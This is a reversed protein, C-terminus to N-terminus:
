ISGILENFVNYVKQKIAGMENKLDSEYTKSANLNKMIYEVADESTINCGDIVYKGKGVSEFVGKFKKSYAVGITPIGISLAAICSHMRSGIFYNCNSIIWKIESQNYQRSVIHLRKTDIKGELQRMVRLSANPDSNVNDISGFTHPVILVRHEKSKLISELLLLTFKKYDMKLRFMNSGFYGGQYLLGNINFGIIRKKSLQPLPPKIEVQMIPQPELTFAVDPCFRLDIKKDSKRITNKVLDISEIDRSLIISSHLMIFRAIHRSIRGKFPGYTQPLLVVKKGLIIAVAIPLCGLIYRRMGYIDSFSDGGRIDCVVDMSELEMLWRCKCLLYNKIKKNRFINYIISLLLIYWMQQSIRSKPSNRYNVVQFTKRVGKIVLEQPASSRNGIFLKIENRSDANLFLNIASYALASVGMNGTDLSAGMFGIKKAIINNKKGM